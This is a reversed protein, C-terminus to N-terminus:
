SFAKRPMCVGLIEGSPLHTTNEAIFTGGEPAWAGNSGHAHSVKAGVVAYACPRGQSRKRTGESPPLGVRSVSNFSSWGVGRHSSLEVIAKMPVLPSYLNFM